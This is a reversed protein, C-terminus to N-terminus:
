NFENLIRSLIQVFIWVSWKLMYVLEFTQQM